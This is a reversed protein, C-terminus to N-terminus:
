GGSRLAVLADLAPVQGAVLRDRAEDLPVWRAEDLEPFERLRGSRPPWELTFTNSVLEALEFGAAEVAFVTVTKGSSYRFAGLNIVDGDPVPVGIEEAFERRAAQLESEGPQVEGKPISWARADKRSWFPGGMHAIFVEFGAAGDRFLLVGASAAIRM